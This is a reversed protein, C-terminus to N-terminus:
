NGPAKGAKYTLRYRKMEKGLKNEGAVVLQGQTESFPWYWSFLVLEYTLSDM